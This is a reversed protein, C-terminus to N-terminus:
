NHSIVVDCFILLGPFYVTMLKINIKLHLNLVDFVKHHFSILDIMRQKYDKQNITSLLSVGLGHVVRLYVVWFEHVVWISWWLM